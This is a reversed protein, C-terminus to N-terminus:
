CVRLPDFVAMMPDHRLEDGVFDYDLTRLSIIILNFFESPDM